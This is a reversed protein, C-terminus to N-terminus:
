FDPGKFEELSGTVSQAREGADGTRNQFTTTVCLDICLKRELTM